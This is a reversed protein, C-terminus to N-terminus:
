VFPRMGTGNALQQPFHKLQDRWYEISGAGSAPLPSAAAFLEVNETYYQLVWHAESSKPHRLIVRATFLVPLEPTTPQRPCGGHGGSM